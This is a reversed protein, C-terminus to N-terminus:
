SLYLVLYFQYLNRKYKSVPELIIGLDPDVFEYRDFIVLTKRPVELKYFTFEKVKVCISWIQIM